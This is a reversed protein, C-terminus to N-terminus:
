VILLNAFRDRVHVIFEPAGYIHVFDGWRPGQRVQFVVWYLWAFFQRLQAKDHDFVDKAADYFLTMYQPPIPEDEDLVISGLEGLLQEVRVIFRQLRDQDIEYEDSGAFWAEEDECRHQELTAVHEDSMDAHVDYEFDPMLEAQRLYLYAALTNVNTLM